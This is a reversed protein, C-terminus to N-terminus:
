WFKLQLNRETLCKLLIKEKDMVRFSEVGHSPLDTVTQGYHESKLDNIRTVDAVIHSCEKPYLRKYYM